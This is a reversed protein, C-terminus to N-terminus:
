GRGGLCVVFMISLCSTDECSKDELKVLAWNHELMIYGRMIYGLKNLGKSDQYYCEHIMGVLNSICRSVGSYNWMKWYHTFTLTIPQASTQKLKCKVSKFM